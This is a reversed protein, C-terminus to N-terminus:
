CDYYHYYYYGVCSSGCVLMWASIGGRGRTLLLVSSLPPGVVPTETFIVRVDRSETIAVIAVVTIAVTRVVGKTWSLPHVEATSSVVIVVLASPVGMVM